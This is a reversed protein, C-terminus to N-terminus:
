MDTISKYVEVFLERLKDQLASRKVSMDAEIYVSLTKAQTDKWIKVNDTHLVYRKATTKPLKKAESGLDEMAKNIIYGAPDEETEPVNVHYSYSSSKKGENKYYASGKSQKLVTRAPQEKPQQPLFVAADSDNWKLLRGTVRQDPKRRPVSVAADLMELFDESVDTKKKKEEM